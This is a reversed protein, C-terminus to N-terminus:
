PKVIEQKQKNINSFKLPNWRCFASTAELSFFLADVTANFASIRRVLARNSSSTGLNCLNAMFFTLKWVRVQKM